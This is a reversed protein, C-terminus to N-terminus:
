GSPIDRRVSTRGVPYAHGYRRVGLDEDEIEARLVRLEDRAAQALRVDVALDMGVVDVIGEDALERGPADNERATGIAHGLAVRRARRGPNPRLAHGHEADAVPHLRHGRLQAARHLRAPHAFEPVGFHASAPVRRQELLELVAGVGFAV